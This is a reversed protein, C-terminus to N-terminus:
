FAQGLGFFVQYSRDGPRRNLPIGLDLRLLGVPSDYRLGAGIAHKLDFGIDQVEPWVNGADWFVAAGWGRRTNYRLEQNIVVVGLGGLPENLFDRPGLSDSAYGRVSNSGGAKFRETSLTIDQGALGRGLGVRYGQAWTLYRGLNSTFTTQAFTKLANLDSGLFKPSVEVNLSLFTGGRPNLRSDRSDNVISADVGGVNLVIPEPFFSARTTVRKLRYGYLFEWPHFYHLAQELRFGQEVQTSEAKPPVPAGAVVEQATLLNQSLRFLSATLDGRLFFSPFHASARTENLYRGRRYRGGLNIGRGFVNDIEADVLASGKEDTNYRLDYSLAYRAEEEVEIRIVAPSEASASVVVRSFIGLNRLRQETEALHRPDLPEGPKLYVQRRILSEHTRRLGKIEVPGVVAPQGEVVKFVVELNGGVPELAPSVRVAAYGLKLYKDRVRLVADSVELEDYTSGITVSAIRTLDDTDLTSGEFRVGSIVAKPGEKVPVEISLRGNEETLRPPSIEALLYHQARYARKLRDQAEKPDTVLVGPGGAATLLSAESIASAGPFHVGALTLQPGPTATFVLTRWGEEDVAKTEVTARYYGRTRLVELLRERGKDLAEEEFLAKQVDATLDPPQAMGEVRWRYRAGPHIFFTASDGDLRTEVVTELFGERVFRGQLRDAASLLDWYNVRDGPKINLTQRVITEALPLEGPQLNVTALPKREEELVPTRAPKGGFRLKQGAGYTYLGREDRRITLNMERGPRFRINVQYYRAEADNLGASYILRINRTLQKGFTFRARPEGERSLLDPQIDVQDLGLDMLQRAVQRTFRGALLTAAQQGVIRGSTDISASPTGTAILSAVEQQSLNSDSDLTMQPADLSGDIAVRADVDELRGRVPVNKILTEARVSIGPDSLTGTFTLSGSTVNFERGQLFVKGGQLMEFRGFPAPTDLDGRISLTGMAALQALNNRVVFPNATEVTLNLAVSQMFRSPQSPGPPVEPPLLGAEPFIDADYLSRQAIVGGALTFDGPRGTFTLDVDLRTKLEEWVRSTPHRGGVPYRLGLDKGSVRLDVDSVQLGALRASGTMTLNGGGLMAGGDDVRVTTGDFTLTAHIATLAQRLNSVRLTADRVRATGQTRPAALPGEVTLDVDAPGSVSTESLFPTLARLDLAGQASARITRAGLDVQGGARFVGWESTLTLGDTTLLGNEFRVTLPSFQLVEDTDKIKVSTAELTIEGRLSQPAHLPGEVHAQGTLGASAGTAGGPAFADGLSGLQVGEWRADVRADGMALQLSAARAPGLISALPVQGSLTVTGGAVKATLGPASISDGALQVDGDSVAILPVDGHQVSVGRLAVTGEARPRDLTGTFTVDGKVTGAMTWDPRSPMKSLDIDLSARLNFPAGPTVGLRASQAAPLIASLPVEGTVQFAVGQSDASLGRLIARDGALEIEGGHVVAPPLGPRRLTGEGVTVLGTVRPAARTGTLEFHGQVQGTMAWGPPLPIQSLDVNGQARLDLSGAGAEIGLRSAQDPTLLAALPVQGALEFSGGQATARLNRVYATDGALEVVGEHIDIPATGPRQIRSETITLLGAARPRTRTGSLTVDGAVRGTMQWGAPVPLKSLDLALTGRASLPSGPDLGVSASGTFSTGPGELHLGELDVRRRLSSLTFPQLTRITWEGSALEVADLRARVEAASPNAFPLVVNATGTAQGSLPRNPSLLPQLPGLPTQNLSLTATLQRQTYSGEGSMRLEPAELAIRGANLGGRATFSVAGADVGNWVLDPIRAEATGAPRSSPGAAHLEFALQGKAQPTLAALDISTGKVDLRRIVGPRADLTAAVSGGLGRASLDATTVGGHTRFRGTAPFTEAGRPTVVAFDGSFTGEIAPPLLGRATGRATVNASRLRAFFGTKTAGAGQLKLQWGLDVSRDAQRVRGSLSANATLRLGTGYRGQAGMTGKVALNGRPDGTANVDGAVTGHLPLDLKLGQRRLREVDVGAFRLHGTRLYEEWTGELRGRGGLMRLTLDVDTRGAGAQSHVIRGEVDDVPWGAVRLTGGRVGLDARLGEKSGSWHGAVSMKGTMPPTRRELVNIDSLDLDAEVQLDPNFDAITGLPGSARLLTNRANATLELIELQLLPSVRVRAHSAGFPFPGEPRNWSGTTSALEVIGGIAGSLDIHEFILTGRPAQYSVTANTVRISRVDLAERLPSPKPGPQAAPFVSLRPSDMELSKFALTRGILFGPALVMRTHPSELRYTPAEIVLDYVEASLTGPVVHMRKISSKPGLASQLRSEVVGRLIDQPFWGVLVVIVAVLALALLVLLIRGRRRL